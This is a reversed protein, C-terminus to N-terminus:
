RNTARIQRFYRFFVAFNERDRYMEPRVCFDTNICRSAKLLRVARLGIRGCDLSKRGLCLGHEFSLQVIDIKRSSSM